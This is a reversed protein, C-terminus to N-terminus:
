APQAGALGDDSLKWEATIGRAIAVDELYDVEGWQLGKISLTEVRSEAALADIVKLYWSTTGQATRMMAEVADVFRQAGDERFVIMGISEANIASSGLQKGIRRLRGDPDRVVKMDDDDYDEDSEDVTVTIGAIGAHVVKEAIEKSVITDGNLVLCDGNFSDRAVWVTGLNDAVQYFPNFLTEVRGRGTGRAAIVGAVLDHHFGTVVTVTRVGSAALADLQWELLTRGSLELLCKPRDETFPYLRSGKGASLIIAKTITM